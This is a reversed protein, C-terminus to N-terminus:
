PKLDAILIAPMCRYFLEVVPETWGKTEIKCKPRKNGSIKFRLMAPQCTKQGGKINM